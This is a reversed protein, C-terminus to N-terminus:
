RRRKHVACPRLFGEIFAISLFIIGGSQGGSTVSTYYMQMLDPDRQSPEFGSFEKRRDFYPLYKESDHISSFSNM